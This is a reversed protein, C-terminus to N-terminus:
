LSTHFYFNLKMKEKRRPSPRSPSFADGISIVVYNEKHKINSIDM